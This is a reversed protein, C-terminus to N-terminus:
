WLEEREYKQLHSNIIMERNFLLMHFLIQSNFKNSIEEEEEEEEEEKEAEKEKWGDIVHQVEIRLIITNIKKM